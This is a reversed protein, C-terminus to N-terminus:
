IEIRSQKRNLSSVISCIVTSSLWFHRTLGVLPGLLAPSVCTSRQWTHVNNIPVSVLFICWPADHDSGLATEGAIRVSATQRRAPPALIDRRLVSTNPAIPSHSRQCAPKSRQLLLKMERSQTLTLENWWLTVPELSNLTSILDFLNWSINVFLCVALPRVNIKVPPTDSSLILVYLFAGHFWIFIRKM